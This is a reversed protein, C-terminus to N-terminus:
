KNLYIDVSEKRKLKNWGVVKGAVVSILSKVVVRVMILRYLIRQVLLWKLPKKKENEFNFAFAASICDVILFVLYFALLKNAQKTFMGFILSISLIVPIRLGILPLMGILVGVSSSIAMTKISDTKFIRHFINRILTRIM